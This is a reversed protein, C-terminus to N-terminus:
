EKNPETYTLARASDSMGETTPDNVIGLVALLGFITNIVELINKEAEQLDLAYGLLNAVAQIVLFLAPIFTLWFYKNKFRVKLNLKM